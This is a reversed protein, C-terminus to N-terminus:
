RVQYTEGYGVSWVQRQRLMSGRPKALLSSVANESYIRASRPSEGTVIAVRSCCSRQNKAENDDCTCDSPSTVKPSISANRCDCARRPQLRLEKCTSPLVRRPKKRYAPCRPHHRDSRASPM